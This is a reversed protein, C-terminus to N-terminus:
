EFSLTKCTTVHASNALSMVGACPVREDTFAPAMKERTVFNHSVRGSKRDNSVFHFWVEVPSVTEAETGAAVLTAMLVILLGSRAYDARHQWGFKPASTQM